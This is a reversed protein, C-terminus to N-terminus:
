HTRGGKKESVVGKKVLFYLSGESMMRGAVEEASGGTGWFVDIRGPGVIASGTDQMLAFRTLPERGVKTSDPQIKPKETVFYALGGKPFILPDAAISRGMTLPVGLNGVPGEKVFHFFIYSENHHFIGSREEPKETLYQRISQLSLGQAPIRNSDRLFKGISRYPRGNSTDYHIRRREGTEFELIGSGQVHLFYLAVPDRSWAIEWGKGELVGDREIEARSYYPVLKGDKVRGVIKESSGPKFGGVDVEVLDDPRRYLPFRFEGQPDSRAELIPEFYGTFMVRGKGDVGEAQVIDFNKSVASRFGSGMGNKEVLSRFLELTELLQRASVRHRGLPYMRDVPNKKLFETTTEIARFLSPQDADDLFPPLPREKQHGRVPAGALSLAPLSLLCFVVLVSRSKKM